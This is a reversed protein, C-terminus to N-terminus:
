GYSKCRFCGTKARVIEHEANIGEFVVPMDFGVFEVMKAGM